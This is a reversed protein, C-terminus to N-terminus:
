RPGLRLRRRFYLSQDPQSIQQELMELEELFLRGPMSRVM